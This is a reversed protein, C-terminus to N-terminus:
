KRGSSISLSALMQAAPKDKLWGDRKEDAM